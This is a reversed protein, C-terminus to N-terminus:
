RSVQFPLAGATTAVVDGGEPIDSKRVLYVSAGRPDTQIYPVYDPYKAVIAKVRKVAPTERDPIRTRTTVTKASAYSRHELYPKGTEDDRVISWSGYDNGDGCELEFWRRLVMSDKRLQWADDYSVGANCLVGICEHKKSMSNEGNEHRIFVNFGALV